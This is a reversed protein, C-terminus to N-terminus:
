FTCIVVSVVLMKKKGAWIMWMKTWVYSTMSEKRALCGRGGRVLVAWRLVMERSSPREVTVKWGGPPRKRTVLWRGGAAAAAGLVAATAPALM